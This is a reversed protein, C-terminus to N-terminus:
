GIPWFTGKWGQHFCSSMSTSYSASLMHNHLTRKQLTSYLHEPIVWISGKPWFPEKGAYVGDRLIRTWSFNGFTFSSLAKEKRKFQNHHSPVSRSKIGCLLCLALRKRWDDSNPSGWGKLRLRTHGRGGKPGPPACVRKRSLPQPLGLESSPVYM